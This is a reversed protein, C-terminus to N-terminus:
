VPRLHNGCQILKVADLYSIEKISAPVAQEPIAKMFLDKFNIKNVSM